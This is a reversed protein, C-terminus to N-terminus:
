PYQVQVDFNGEYVGDLTGAPIDLSAGIRFDFPNGGPVTRQDPGDLTFDRVTLTETGGVRTITIDQKPIRIKIKKTRAPAGGFKATHGDFAAVLDGTVSLESGEPLTPDLIVTGGTSAADMYITGFELDRIKVLSLPSVVTVRGTADEEVPQAAAPQAFALAMSGAMLTVIKEM